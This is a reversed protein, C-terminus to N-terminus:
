KLIPLQDFVVTASVRHLKCLGEMHLTVFTIGDKMTTVKCFGGKM